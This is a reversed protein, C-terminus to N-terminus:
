KDDTECYFNLTDLLISDINIDSFRVNLMGAVDGLPLHTWRLQKVSVNAYLAM